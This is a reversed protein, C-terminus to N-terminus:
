QRCIGREERCTRVRRKPSGAILSTSATSSRNETDLSARDPEHAAWMKQEGELAARLVRKGIFRNGGEGAIEYRLGNANDFETWVDM